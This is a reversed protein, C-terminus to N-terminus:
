GLDQCTMSKLITVSGLEDGAASFGALGRLILSSYPHPLIYSEM